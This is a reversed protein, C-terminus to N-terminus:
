VKAATSEVYTTLAGGHLAKEHQQGVIVAVPLDSYPGAVGLFECQPQNCEVRHEAGGSRWAPNWRHAAWARRHWGRRRWLLDHRWDDLYFAANSRDGVNWKGRHDCVHCGGPAITRWRFVFILRLTLWVAAAVAFPTAIGALYSSVDFQM